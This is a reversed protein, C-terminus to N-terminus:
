SGPKLQNFCVRQSNQNIISSYSEERLQRALTERERDVELSYFYKIFKRCLQEDKGHIVLKYWHRDKVSTNKSGAFFEWLARLLTM